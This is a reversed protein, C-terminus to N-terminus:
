RLPDQGDGARLTTLRNTLLTLYPARAAGARERDLLEAVADPSLGRLRARLQALTMADYGPLAAPESGAAPTSAATDAVGPSQPSGATVPSGEGTPTSPESAPSGGAPGQDGGRRANRTEPTRGRSGASGTGGGSTSAAARGATTSRPRGGPAGPRSRPPRAGGVGRSAPAAGDDGTAEGAPGDDGAAEDAAGDAPSPAAAAPGSTSGAPRSSDAPEDEEDFHAWSPRETPRNTLGALLEDGRGALQAIEQQVRMSARVAQGAVTVSLAPLDEPLHRIRDLGAAVLGAAVRVPLPLTIAMRM